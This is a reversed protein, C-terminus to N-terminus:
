NFRRWGGWGFRRRMGTGIRALLTDHPNACLSVMDETGMNADAHIRALTRTAKTDYAIAKETKEQEECWLQMMKNVLVDDYNFAPYEDADDYLPLLAKKYLLEMYNSIISTNQPLWPCTSVDLIQYKAELCVNPIITLQKGDVDSLTVDFNNRRDKKVAVYDLFQNKSQKSTKDMVITENILSATATPGSLTVVVSPTEVEPVTVVGFSSNTVSTMLAQQNKIRINRWADVWNFQNYRPRMMNLHWAQGSDLQRVARPWGVYYPLTLTQDGNIKFCQEMLTGAVDAQPFAERAAENLFRLLTIRQEPNDKNLGIKQGARTLIDGVAM